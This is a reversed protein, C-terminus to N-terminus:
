LKLIRRTGILTMKRPDYIRLFYNGAALGSLDVSSGNVVGNKQMVEVGFVNYVKIATTYLGPLKFQIILNKQVPNPYVSLQDNNDEIDDVGTGIFSYPLSFASSCGNSTVKVTYSGAAVPKYVQETAGAIIVNDKYWQNGTPASSVLNNDMDKTISPQLPVPTVIVRVPRPSAYNIGNIVAKVSYSGTTNVKLVAANAGPIAVGDKYWQNAQTASSILDISSNGCIITDLNPTIALENMRNRVIELYNGNFNTLVMDLKGDSDLDGLEVSYSKNTFQNQKPPDFSFSGIESKNRYIVPGTVDRLVLVLDLKGDGDIDAMRGWRSDGPAPVEVPVFSVVSGASTNRLLTLSMKGSSSNALFIDKKGDGDIDGVSITQIYNEYYGDYLRVPGSFAMVGNASINKYFDLSFISVSILDVKGDNDLDFPIGEPLPSYVRELGVHGPGASVNKLYYAGSQAGVWVDLRGDGDVDLVEVAWTNVLATKEYLFTFSITDGKGDNRYVSVKGVQNAFYNATVLDDWGDGDMDAIRISLLASGGGGDADIPMQRPESFVLSDPSSYNQRIIINEVVFAGIIDLKGDKNLDHLQVLQPDVENGDLILSRGFLTSDFVTKDPHVISYNVNSRFQLGTALNEVEIPGLAVGPPVKAQILSPTASQIEAKVGGLLIRNQIPDANFNQGSISITSGLIGKQPSVATVRPSAPLSFTFGDKEVKRVTSLSIKGSNGGAVVARIETPSVVEFSLAPQGGFEVGSVANFYNGIIRVTDKRGAAVPSFGSIVPRAVVFGAKQGTGYANVISIIGSSGLGVKAKIVTPSVVEFALAATGGFRVDLVNIFNLGTITVVVGSDGVEPTFSQIVPPAAFTFGALKGSGYPNTVQVLGGAGDATIAEITFNDIVNFSAAPVGGFSVATAGTFNNGKIVVKTGKSAIAPDFSQISPLLAQNKYVSISESTFNTTVVDPFGDDNLDGIAVGYPSNGYFDAYNSFVPNGPATGNQFVRVTNYSTLVVDIKGDGNIDGFGPHKPTTLDYYITATATFSLTGPTSSNLYVKTSARDNYMACALDPKGDNNFDGYALGLPQDGGYFRIKDGFNISSGTSKNRFIAITNSLQCTVAIDPKGDGDIDGTVLSAPGLDIDTSLDTLRTFSINSGISTNQYLSIANSLFNAVVLDMRGDGDFDITALDFPSNGTPWEKRAAFSIAGVTSTNRFVALKGEAISTSALDQKGDGDFDGATIAYAMVGNPLDIKPEFNLEGATSRNRLVSLSALEGTISYNNATALDPLGDGDLDMMVVDNPKLGTPLDLPAALTNNAINGANSFTVLFPLVSSASKNGVTVLIPQYNAGMPVKVGLSTANASEVVAKVAGFYVINNSPNPDFGSGNIQVSTGVPGSVPLFSQIRPQAISTSLAFVMMISFWISIKM